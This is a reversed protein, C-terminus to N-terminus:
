RMLFLQADLIAGDMIANVLWEGAKWDRAVTIRIVHRRAAPVEPWLIWEIPTFSVRDDPGRIEGRVQHWGRADELDLVYYLFRDQGLRFEPRPMGKGETSPDGTLITKRVRPRWSEDALNRFSVSGIRWPTGERYLGWTVLRNTHYPLDDSGTWRRVEVFRVTGLDSRSGMPIWSATNTEVTISRYARFEEAISALYQTADLLQGAVDVRANQSLLSSMAAVDKANYHRYFEAVLSQIDPPVPTSVSGALASLGFVVISALIAAVLWPWRGFPGSPRVM